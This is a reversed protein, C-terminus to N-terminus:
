RDAETFMSRGGQRPTFSGSGSGACVGALSREEGREAWEEADRRQCAAALSPTRCARDWGM